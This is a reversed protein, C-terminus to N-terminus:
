HEQPNKPQTKKNPNKTQKQAHTHTQEKKGSTMLMYIRHMYCAFDFTYLM